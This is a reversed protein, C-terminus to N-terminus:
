EYTYIVVTAKWGHGDVFNLTQKSNDIEYAISTKNLRRLLKNKADKEAAELAFKENLQYGSEGIAEHKKRELTEIREKKVPANVIPEESSQQTRTPQNNPPTEDVKGNPKTDDVKVFDPKQVNIEIKTKTFYDVFDKGTYGMVGVFAAILVILPTKSRNESNTM